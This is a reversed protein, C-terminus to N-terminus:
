RPSTGSHLDRLARTDGWFIRLCLAAIWVSSAVLFANTIGNM